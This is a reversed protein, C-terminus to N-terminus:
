KDVSFEITANLHKQTTRPQVPPPARKDGANVLRDFESKVVAYCECSFDELAPRDVITIHGRRYSILEEAQLAIAATTVGARRVGLMTAIFEQTLPLEDSAVRDSSMLLWRALREEVSHLRNCAAVQSVQVFTAQVYRLVVRRLAASANFRERLLAAPMRLGSGQIQVMTELPSEDVELVVSISGMGEYGVVGVEGGTGDSMQAVLSIMAGTPFYIHDIVEGSHYLVQGHPMKVPTLHSALQEYEEPPLAALLRNEIQPRPKPDISM